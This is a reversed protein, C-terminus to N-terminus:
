PASSVPPSTALRLFSALKFLRFEYTGPASPMTVTWTRTTVGAGVYTFTVYSNNAAGVPAFALWDTTGGEGNTLTVTVQQGPSASTTSVTLTPPPPPEVTVPPSTAVRTFTGQRFLRFEYTGGAKPTTVTWTRTTVGAGVYTFFTYSNNPASAPAFAMWDLTDGYGGTLTVTV